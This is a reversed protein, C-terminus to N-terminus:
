DSFSARTKFFIALQNITLQTDGGNLQSCYLLRRVSLDPFGAEYSLNSGPVEWIYVM